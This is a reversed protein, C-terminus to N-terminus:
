LSKSRGHPSAAKKEPIGHYKGEHTTEPQEAAQGQPAAAGRLQHVHPFLRHLLVLVAVLVVALRLPALGLGLEVLGQLQVAENVVRLAHGGVQVVEPGNGQFLSFQRVRFLIVTVSERIAFSAPFPRPM